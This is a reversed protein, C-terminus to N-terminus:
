LISFLLCFLVQREGGGSRDDKPFTRSPLLMKKKGGVKVKGPYVSVVGFKPDYRDRAVLTGVKSHFCLEMQQCKLTQKILLNCGNLPTMEALCRVTVQHWFGLSM